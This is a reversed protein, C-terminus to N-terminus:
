PVFRRTTQVTAEANLDLEAVALIEIRALVRGGPLIKAITIASVSEIPKGAEDLVQTNRAHGESVIRVRRM